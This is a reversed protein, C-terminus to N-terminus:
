IFLRKAVTAVFIGGKRGHFPRRLCGTLLEEAATFHSISFRKAVAGM